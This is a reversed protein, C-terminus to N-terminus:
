LVFNRNEFQESVTCDQASCRRDTVEDERLFVELYLLSQDDIGIMVGERLTKVTTPVSVNGAVAESRRWNACVASVLVRTSLTRVEVVHASGAANVTAGFKRVFRIVVGRRRM